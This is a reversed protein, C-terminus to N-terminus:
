RDEAPARRVSHIGNPHVQNDIAEGLRWPERKAEKATNAYVLWITRGKVAEEVYYAKRPEGM